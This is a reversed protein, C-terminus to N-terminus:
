QNLQENPNDNPNTGGGAFAGQDPQVSQAEKQTIAEKMKSKQNAMEVQQQMQQQQQQEAQWQQFAKWNPSRELAKEKLPYDISELFTQPDLLGAQFLMMSQNAVDLKKHATDVGGEAQVDFTNPDGLISGTFNLYINAGEKRISVGREMKYIQMGKEIESEDKPGVQAIKQLAYQKDREWVKAVTETDTGSIRIVQEKDMYKFTFRIILKALKAYGIDKLRTIYSRVRTQAAQQLKEISVGAPTNSNIQAQGTISDNVGAIMALYYEMQKAFELPMNSMPPPPVDMYAKRVDDTNVVIISNDENTIKDPQIYRSSIIKTGIASKAIIDATRKINKNWEDFMDRLESYLDKGYVRDPASIFPVFIYPLGCSLSEKDEELVQRGTAITRIGTMVDYEEVVRVMDGQNNEGSNWVDVEDAVENDFSSDLLPDFKPFLAKLEDKTYFCIQIVWRIDDNGTAMPDVRVFKPDIADYKIMKGANSEEMRVKIVSTGGLMAFKHLRDRVEIDNNTNQVWKVVAQYINADLDLGPKQPYVLMDINADMCIGCLNEIYVMPLNGKMRTTDDISKVNYNASTRWLYDWINSVAWSNCNKGSEGANMRQRIQNIKELESMKKM